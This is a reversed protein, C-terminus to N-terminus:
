MLYFSPCKLGILVALYYFLLKKKMGNVVDLQMLHASVLYLDKDPVGLSPALIIHRCLRSRSAELRVTLPPNPM